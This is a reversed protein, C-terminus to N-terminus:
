SNAFKGFYKKEAQRRAEAAEALTDYTGFNYIKGGVMLRAQWKGNTNPYVGKVGSQALVVRRNMQNQANTAPRLNQRTNNLRNGDRHDIQKAEGYGAREAVMRHMLIPKGGNWTQAYPRDRKGACYWKFKRLFAYDRDSVFAIKGRTLPITKM